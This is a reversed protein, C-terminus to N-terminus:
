LALYHSRGVEGKTPGKGEQGGLGHPQVLAASSPLHHYIPWSQAMM